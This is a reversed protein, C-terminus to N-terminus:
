VLYIVCVPDVLLMIVMHLNEKGSCHQFPM